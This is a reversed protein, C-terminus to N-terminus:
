LALSLIKRPKKLRALLMFSQLSAWFITGLRHGLICIAIIRLLQWSIDGEDCELQFYWLQVSSTLHFSAFWVKESEPTQQGRFFQECHSLWGLPDDDKGDFTPFSLKHSRPVYTKHQLVPSPHSPMLGPPVQLM